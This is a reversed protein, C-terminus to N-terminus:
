MIKFNLETSISRSVNENTNREYTRIWNEKRMYPKRFPTTATLNKNRIQSTVPEFGPGSVSEGLNKTTKRLGM